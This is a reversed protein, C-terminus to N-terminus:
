TFGGNSQIREDICGKKINALLIVCFSILKV